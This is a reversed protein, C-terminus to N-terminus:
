RGNRDGERVEKLVKMFWLFGSEPMGILKEPNGILFNILHDSKIYYLGNEREVELGNIIFGKIKSHTFGLGIAVQKLSLYGCRSFERGMSELKRSIAVMTRDPLGYEKALKNYYKFVLPRPYKSALQTLFAVEQSSWSEQKLQQTIPFLKRYKTAVARKERGMVEAIKSYSLGQSKLSILEATQDDNWVEM